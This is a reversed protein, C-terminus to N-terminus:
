TFDERLQQSQCLYVQLPNRWPWRNSNSETTKLVKPTGSRVLAKKWKLFMSYINVRIAMERIPKNQKSTKQGKMLTPPHPTPPNLIRLLFASNERNFEYIQISKTIFKKKRKLLLTVAGSWTCWSENKKLSVGFCYSAGAGERWMLLAHAHYDYPM